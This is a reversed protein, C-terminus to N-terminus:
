WTENTGAITVPPSLKLEVTYINGERVVALNASKRPLLSKVLSLGQGDDVATKKVDFPNAITVLTCGGSKNLRIAPLSDASRHKCANTLLENLVLAIPVAEERNLFVPHELESAYGMRCTSANIINRLLEELNVEESLTRAQLGHIIAISYIRSIAVEIVGAMEPLDAAHLRLLGVVGQLNNKIRHHVERVLVDRQERVETLRLEEREMRETINELMGMVYQSQSAVGTITTAVIRGWFAGGDKRLYKKEISYAPMEGSFIAGLLKRTSGAYDPHTLGGITLHRLEELSYGFMKCYAANATFIKQDQGALAIGIPAQEFLQRFRAESEALSAAMKKRDTIDVLTTRNKVYNGAADYVASSSLLVTFITGDRRILDAELTGVNGERKFRSFDNAFEEASAPAHFDTIKRGILEERSYGLWDAETQNIRMIRGDSDLSHYGCPARNYLEELESKSQSFKEERHKRETIDRIVSLLLKRGDSDIIRANVEVMMVSGDKCLHASEFSSQGSEMLAKMRPAIFQNYEPVNLARLNMGMMEDRTYGRSKWASDNLYVFDGDLNLLFVTDSISNLMLASLKLQDEVRKHGTIDTLTVRLGQAITLTDLRVQFVSGDGRKLTLECSQRENDRTSCMFHRHWRDRDESVVLSAFRRHLLKGREEGMLAAGTLNLEDITGSRDLSIYGVPSNDYLDAYRDRSEEIAGLARRLEENQMELEIQHM